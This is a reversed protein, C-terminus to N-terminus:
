GLFLVGETNDVAGVFRPRFHSNEPVIGARLTHVGWNRTYWQQSRNMVGATRVWHSFSSEAFGNVM